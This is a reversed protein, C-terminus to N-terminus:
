VRKFYVAISVEPDERWHVGIDIIYMQKEEFVKSVTGYVDVRLNVQNKFNWLIWNPVQFLVTCSCYTGYFIDSPRLSLYVAM